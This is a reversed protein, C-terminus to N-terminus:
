TLIVYWQRGLISRHQGQQKNSWRFSCATILTLSATRADPRRFHKGKIMPPFATVYIFLYTRIDCLSRLLVYGLYWCIGRSQRYCCRHRLISWACCHSWKQWGFSWSLKWPRALVRIFSSLLVMKTYPVCTGLEGLSLFIGYVVAFAGIHETLRFHVNVNNPSHYTNMMPLCVTCLRREHHLWDRSSV